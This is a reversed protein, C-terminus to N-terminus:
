SVMPVRTEIRMDLAGCACSQLRHVLHALRGHQGVIPVCRVWHKILTQIVVTIDAGFCSRM